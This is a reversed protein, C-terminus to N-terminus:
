LKEKEKAGRLFDEIVKRDEENLEYLEYVLEDIRRELNEIEQKLYAIRRLDEEYEGIIRRMEDESPVQMSLLDNKVIREKRKLVELIFKASSETKFAIYDKRTLLVKYKTRGEVDKFVEIRLCSPSYSSKSLASEEMVHLLSHLNGRTYAEPFAQVKRELAAKEEQFRLIQEVAKRIEDAFKEEEATRPLRIPLKELYQRGYIYYKGSRLPSIKKIYFELVISNFLGLFYLYDEMSLLIGYVGSGGGGVFYYVGEKDFTFTNRNALVQILIKRQEFLHLNQKRGFAYWERRNKWKGGERKEFEEKHELFYHWTNPFDRKMEDESYLVADGSEIKYPFIVYLGKWDIRWRRVDEGKLLPKLMEKEVVYERGSKLQRIKVNKGNIQEVIKVIYISDASTQLGVFINECVDKLRRDANREIKEFVTREKEPMLSWIGKLNSQKFIFLDYYESSYATENYILHRRIDELLKEKPKKVRVCKVFNSEIEERSEPLKLIIIAPYNTVDRFVGTDAFDIFQEIKYDRAILERIKKGYNASTFQNSVIFGLKGGEKLWKLGREIFVIYIDYNAEPTKYIKKYQERQEKSLRQIRVYPPNGVVFDFKMGKVEAIRKLDNQFPKVIADFYELKPEEPMLSDTCYINFEIREEDYKRKVIDYLDIIQSFLVWEAIHCAFLNIDFGYICNEIEYLIQYAEDADLENVSLKHLKKLFKEILRRAAEALFTGSGCAPDLIKKGEIEDNETYGVADLIYKVVELPTYYEGLRKREEKPLYDEYVRGLIDRNVTNFDFNNFRKLIRGVVRNLEEELERQVKREERGLTYREADSIRWWDFVSVRYIREYIDKAEEFADDLLRLYPMKTHEELFISVYDSSFRRKKMFSKDECIRVFLIRNLLIYATEKCFTEKPEAEGGVRTKKWNEFAERLRRGSEHRRRREYADLFQNFTENLEELSRKLSEIFLDYGVKYDLSIENKHTKFYKIDENFGIFKERGFKKLQIISRMEKESLNEAGKQVIEDINLELIKGARRREKEYKYISLDHGNTLIGFKVYRVEKLYDELKEEHTISEENPNVTEIILVPLPPDSDDYCIIDKREREIKYHGEGENRTWGLVEGLLYNAFSHRFDFEGGREDIEARIKAFAECVKSVFDRDFM